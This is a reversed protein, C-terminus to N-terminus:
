AKYGDPWINKKFMCMDLNLYRRYGMCWNMAEKRAQGDDRVGGWRERHRGMHGHAEGDSGTGAWTGTRRGM